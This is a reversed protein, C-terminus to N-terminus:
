RCGRTRVIGACAPRTPPRHHGCHRDIGGVHRDHLSTQGPRRPPALQRRAAHEDLEIDRSAAVAPRTGHRDGPEVGAVLGVSQLSAVLHEDDPVHAAPEEAATREGLTAGLDDGLADHRQRTPRLDVRRRSATAVAIAPSRHVADAARLVRAVRDAGRRHGRHRQGRGGAPRRPVVGGGQRRGGRAGRLGSRRHRRCPQPGMRRAGPRRGCAPVVPPVLRRARVRARDVRYRVSDAM